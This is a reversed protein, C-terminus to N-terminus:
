DSGSRDTDFDAEADSGADEDIHESDALLAAGTAMAFMEDLEAERDDLWSPTPIHRNTRDYPLPYQQWQRRTLQTFTVRRARSYIHRRLWHTVRLQQSFDSSDAVEDLDARSILDVRLSSRV